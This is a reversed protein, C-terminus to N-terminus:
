YKNLYDTIEVKLFNKIEPWTIEEFINPTEDNEADGFYNLSKLVLFESAEPFKKKYYGMMEELTFERLLYFLDIFDKKTGRGTIASLKMAAIDKKGALRIGDKEVVNELWAFPYNVFDVKIRNIIYISINPSKRIINAEGLSNVAASLGIEDISFKGFLDIDVSSRHGIHLALASGGVLRMEAFETLQMLSKLLGL